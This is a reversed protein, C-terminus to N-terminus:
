SFFYTQYKKSIVETNKPNKCKPDNQFIANFPEEKGFVVMFIKENAM